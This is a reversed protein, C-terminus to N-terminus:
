EININQEEQQQQQQQEGLVEIISAGCGEELMCVFAGEGRKSHMGGGSCSKRM